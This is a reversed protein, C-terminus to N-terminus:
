PLRVGTRFFVVGGQNTVAVWVNTGAADGPSAPGCVVWPDATLLNTKSLAEYLRSNTTPADVQVASLPSGTVATIRGHFYSLLNTPISDAIYEELNNNTDGDGDAGPLCNTIEDFYGIEWLDPIGDGDQDPTWRNTYLYDKFFFSDGFSQANTPYNNLIEGKELLWLNEIENSGSYTRFYPCYYVVMAHTFPVGAADLPQTWRYRYVDVTKGGSVPLGHFPTADVLEIAGVHTMNTRLDNWNTILPDWYATRMGVVGTVSVDPAITPHEALVYFTTTTRAYDVRFFSGWGGGPVPEDAPDNTGGGHYGWDIILPPVYDGPYFRADDIRTTAANTHASRPYEIRVTARVEYLSSSSCTGTVHYERWANDAPTVFNTVTDGQVQNTLTLDYWGLRLEASTMAFNTDRLIWIAFTYTGPGPTTNQSVLNTYQLANTAAGEFVGSALGRRGGWEARYSGWYEPQVYWQSGRFDGPNGDEFSNNALTLVNSYAGPYFSADDVQMRDPEGARAWFQALVGPSVYRLGQQTCTGTVYVHHWSGDRPFGALDRVDAQVMAGSANVWELKVELRNPNVGPDSRLWTAFTCTGGTTALPQFLGAESFARYVVGSEMWNTYWGPLYAGLPSAHASWDDRAADGTGQWGTNDWNTVVVAPDAFTGNTFASLIRPPVNYYFYDRHWQNSLFFQPAVPYSNTFAGDLRVLYQRDELDAGYYSDLYPAYWVKIPGAYAVGNSCPQQWDCRYVNLALTGSTPAGHFPTNTTLTITGVKTMNSHTTVWNTTGPHQWATYLGMVGESDPYVTLDPYAGLAYFTTTTRAHSIQMFAGYGNTGPVQERTPDLSYHNYYAGEMVVSNTFGGPMLRAGDLYMSPDSPNVDYQFTAVARLEFLEADACSGTVAYKRWTNDNVVNLDVATDAQVKNTYTADRWELRLQVNSVIFSAERRLYISFTWTGTTQPYINQSFASVFNSYPQGRWGHLVADWDGASPWWMRRSNGVHQTVVSWQSGYWSEYWNTEGHEFGGNMLFPSGAYGGPYLEADDFLIASPDGTKAGHRSELAARVFVLNNSACSGTVHVQHWLADRDLHALSASFAPQVDNTAADKWELRLYLNTPNSGPDLKLWGCFTYTGTSATVDRYILAEGATAANFRAGREGSRAAPLARWADGTATWGSAAWNTTGGPTEFTGNALMDPWVPGSVLWVVAAAFWSGRM